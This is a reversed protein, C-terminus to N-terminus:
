VDGGTPCVPVARKDTGLFLRNPNKCQQDAEPYVELLEGIAQAAQEAGLTCGLDFVVRYRNGPGPAYWDGAASFTPYWFAVRLGILRARDLAKVHWLYDPEGYGLPRGDKGTNDIDIAALRQGLFEGWGSGAHPAYTGCMFTQGREIADMLQWPTVEVPGAKKLRNTIAGLERGTPKRAYPVADLMVAYRPDCPSCLGGTSDQYGNPVKAGVGRGKGDRGALADAAPAKKDSAAM